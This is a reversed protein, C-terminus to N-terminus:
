GLYRHLNRAGCKWRCRSVKSLLDMWHLPQVWPRQIARSPLAVLAVEALRQMSAHSVLRPCTSKWSWTWNKAATTRPCEELSSKRRTSLIAFALRERELARWWWWPTSCQTGCAVAAGIAAVAAAREVAVEMAKAVVVWLVREEVSARVVDAMVEAMARAAVVVAAVVGIRDEAQVGIRDEVVAAAAAVAAAAVGIRGVVEVVAAGIKDVALVGIRVVAAGAWPASDSFREFASYNKDCSGLHHSISIPM